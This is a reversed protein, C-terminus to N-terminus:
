TKHIDQRIYAATGYKKHYSAAVLTYGQVTGRNMFQEKDHAHTKQLLIVSIDNNRAITSLYESKNRSIGEINLQLVHLQLGVDRTLQGQYPGNQHQTSSNNNTNNININYVSLDMIYVTQDSNNTFQKGDLVYM